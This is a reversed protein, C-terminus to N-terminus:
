LVAVPVVVTFTLIARIPKVTFLGAIVTVAPAIVPLANGMVTVGVFPNVPLTVSVALTVALGDPAAFTGVSLKPEVDGTLMVLALGAVAVRVMVVVPDCCPGQVALM